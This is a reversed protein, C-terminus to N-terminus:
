FKVSRLLPGAGLYCGAGENGELLSTGLVTHPGSIRIIRCVTSLRVEPNPRVPLLSSWDTHQPACPSQGEPSLSIKLRDPTKSWSSFSPPTEM